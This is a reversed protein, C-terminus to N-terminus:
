FPAKAFRTEYRTSVELLKQMWMPVRGYLSWSALMKQLKLFHRSITIIQLDWFVMRPLLWPGIGQVRSQAFLLDSTQISMCYASVGSFGAAQSSINLVIVNYVFSSPFLRSGSMVDSLVWALHMRKSSLSESRFFMAGFNLHLCDSHISSEQSFWSASIAEWHWHFLSASLIVYRETWCSQINTWPSQLTPNVM